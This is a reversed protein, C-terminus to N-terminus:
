SGTGRGIMEKYRIISERRQLKLQQKFMNIFDDAKADVEEDGVTAKAGRERVTAPRRTEVIDDEEFHKFASNLSASKKMKTPLRAPTDGAVPKTDSNSRSVHQEKLQSYVEDLSQLEENEVNEEQAEEFDFHTENELANEEHPQQFFYHTLDGEVQEVFHAQKERHTNEFSYDTDSDPVLKPHVAISSTSDQSRYTYFNISKLRQLVSPSTALKPQQPDNQSNQQHNHHHKQNALTSAFAITCIMLNLLVFLVAPTFWSNMSAWISPITNSVSEEFM